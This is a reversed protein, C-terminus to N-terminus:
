TEVIDAMAARIFGTFAAGSTPIAAFAGGIIPISQLLQTIPQLFGGLFSGPLNGLSQLAKFPATLTRSIQQGWASARRQTRDLEAMFGSASATIKVALPAIGASM